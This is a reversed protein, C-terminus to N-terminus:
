YWPTIKSTILCPQKELVARGHPGWRYVKETESANFDNEFIKFLDVVYFFIYFSLFRQWLIWLFGGQKFCHLDESHRSSFGIISYCIRQKWIIDDGFLYSIVSFFVFFFVCHSVNKEHKRKEKGWRTNKPQQHSLVHFVHYLITTMKM